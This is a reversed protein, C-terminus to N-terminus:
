FSSSSLSIIASILLSTFIRLSEISSNLFPPRSSKTACVSASIATKIGYKGSCNDSSSTLANTLSAIAAVLAVVGLSIPLTM